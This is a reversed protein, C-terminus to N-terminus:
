RDWQNHSTKYRQQMEVLLIKGLEEDSDSNEFTDLWLECADDCAVYFTYNGSEPVKLFPFFFFSFQPQKVAPLQSALVWCTITAHKTFDPKSAVSLFVNANNCKWV